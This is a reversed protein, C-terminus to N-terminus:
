KKEEAKKAAKKATRAKLGFPRRRNGLFDLAGKKTLIEPRVHSGAESAKLQRLLKARAASAKPLKTIKAILYARHKKHANFDFMAKRRANRLEVQAAAWVNRRIRNKAQVKAKIQEPTLTKKPHNKRYEARRANAAKLLRLHLEKEVYKEQRKAAIARKIALMKRLHYSETNKKEAAVHQKALATARERLLQNYRALQKASKAWRQKRAAFIRRRHQLTRSTVLRQIKPAKSHAKAGEKKNPKTKAVVYNRVDDEHTLNFLKRIKAARKPGVRRPIVKDTLGEIEEEGKKVVILNLASLDNAVICGRVTRRRRIGDRRGRRYGIVGPSLLLRVRHNCLVGQKMPFGDKDNGGAIRLIYGKFQDGLPTADVEDSVRLDTFIRLKREDDIDFTKQGGTTPCAINLKM